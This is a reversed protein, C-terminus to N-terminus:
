KYDKGHVGLWAELRAATPDNPGAGGGTTNVAKVIAAVTVPPLEKGKVFDMLVQAECLVGPGLASLLKELATFWDAKGLAGLIEPAHNLVNTGMEKACNIAAQQPPTPNPCAALLTTAALVLAIFTTKM